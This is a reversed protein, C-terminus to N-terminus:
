KAKSFYLEFLSHFASNALLIQINWAFRDYLTFQARNEENKCTNTAYRGRVICFLVIMCHSFQSQIFNPSGCFVVCNNFWRKYKSMPRLHRHHGFYTFCSHVLTDNRKRENREAANLSLYMFICQMGIAYIFPVRYM